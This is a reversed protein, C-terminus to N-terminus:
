RSRERIYSQIARLSWLLEYRETELLECREELNKRRDIDWEGALQRVLFERRDALAKAEARYQEALQRFECLGDDDRMKPREEEDKTRKM